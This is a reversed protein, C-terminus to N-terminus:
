AKMIEMLRLVLKSDIEEFQKKLKAIRFPNHRNKFALERIEQDEAFMANIENRLEWNIGAEYIARLSDKDASLKSWYDTTKFKTLLTDQSLLDFSVGQRICRRAFRDMKEFDNLIVAVELANYADRAFVFDFKEFTEAYITASAELNDAVL